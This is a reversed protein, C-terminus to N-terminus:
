EGSHQTYINQMQKAMVESTAKDFAQAAAKSAEEDYAGRVNKLYTRLESDSEPTEPTETPGALKRVIRAYVADLRVSDLKAYLLAKEEESAHDALENIEGLWRGSRMDFEDPNSDMRALLLEIAKHMDVIGM